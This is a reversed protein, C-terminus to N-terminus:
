ESERGLKVVMRRTGSTLPSRAEIPLERLGEPVTIRLSFAGDPGLPIPRGAIKLETGPQSRGSIVMEVSALLLPPEPEPGGASSPEGRSRGVVSGDDPTTAPVQGAYAPGIPRPPRAFGPSSPLQGAPFFAPSSPLFGGSTPLMFSGSSVPIFSISGALSGPVFSVSGALSGPVFSVSGALVSPSSPPLGALAERSFIPWTPAGSPPLTTGGVMIRMEGDDFLLQPAIALPAPASVPAQRENRLRDRVDRLDEEFRITIFDDKIWTSPQDSPVSVKNSRALPFWQDAGRYGLEVIYDRDPNPTPLYWSRAWEACDHEYMAHANTGDFDVSTVDYLRLAFVSGGAARAAEKYELTLDWYAFLWALDRPLLVIRNDGYSEPLEPLDEDVGQLEEPRYTAGSVVYKSALADTQASVPGLPSPRPPESKKSGRTEPRPAAVPRASTVPAAKPEVPEVEAPKSRSAVKSIPATAPKASRAPKPAATPAETATRAAPEVKAPKRAEAKTPVTASKKPASTTSQKAQAQKATARKILDIIEDKRLRNLNTLGLRQAITLLEDKLMDAYSKTEKTM